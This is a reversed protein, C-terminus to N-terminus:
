RATLIYVFEECDYHMVIKYFLLGPYGHPVEIRGSVVRGGREVAWISLVLM